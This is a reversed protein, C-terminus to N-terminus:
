FSQCRIGPFRQFLALGGRDDHHHRVTIQQIVAIVQALLIQQAIGDGIDEVVVQIEHEIGALHQGAIGRQDTDTGPAGELPRKRPHLLKSRL